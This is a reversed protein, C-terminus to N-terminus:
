INNEPSIFNLNEEDYKWGPLVQDNYIEVIKPSQSLIAAFADDVYISDAVINEIVFAFKRTRSNNIKRV